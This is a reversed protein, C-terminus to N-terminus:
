KMNVGLFIKEAYSKRTFAQVIDHEWPMEVIADNSAFDGGDANPIVKDM